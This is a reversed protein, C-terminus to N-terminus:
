VEKTEQLRKGAKRRKSREQDKQGEMFVLNNIVSNLPIYNMCLPTTSKQMSGLLM